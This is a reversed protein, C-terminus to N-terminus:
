GSGSEGVGSLSYPGTSNASLIKMEQHAAKKISRTVAPCHVSIRSWFQSPVFKRSCHLQVFLQNKDIMFSSRTTGFDHPHTDEKGVVKALHSGAINNGSM